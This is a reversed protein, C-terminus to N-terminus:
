EVSYWPKEAAKGSGEALRHVRRAPLNEFTERLGEPWEVEITEAAEAAGLGFHLRLDNQSIYSSGCHVEAMQSTGGATVRVLAGVGFRNRRGELRLMIWSRANGGDNRLLSPRNRSNAVVIDIDGDGDLDGFAAGRSSFREEFAPGARDSVEQLMGSGANRFLQNQQLYSSSHDYLHITDELHGNAIFLDLWGDHDFDFFKVGWSVMPLCTEGLGHAMGVDSYVDNGESRYLANLQKQFTSVIFDLRGDRNFDAADVGMNGLEDGNASLAVGCELAVDEFRGGGLNHLLNNETTDNAVFLDMRGDRDYDTALVGMGRGPPVRAIGSRETIDEFTGDGRNLFLTDREAEYTGPACYRPIDNVKCPLDPNWHEKAYNTVYLDLDGDRDMDFFCAGAGFRPDGTGSAATVDTFRHGAEKGENRYLVDPGYQCVYLDLDGDGDYDGAAGGSGPGTGPVAKEATVDIFKGAGASPLPGVSSADNRYLANSVSANGAPTPPLPRGNVFYIDLDEDGDFDFLIVGSALTEVIYYKGSSGDTHRFRIGAEEHRETFSVGLGAAGGPRPSDEGGGGCGALVALAPLLAPRSPRWRAAM